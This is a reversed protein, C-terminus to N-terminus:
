AMPPICIVVTKLPFRKAARRHPPTRHPPSSTPYRLFHTQGTCKWDDEATEAEVQPSPAQLQESHALGTHVPIDARVGASTPGVQLALSGVVDATM